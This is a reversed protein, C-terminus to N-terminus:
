ALACSAVGDSLQSRRGFLVPLSGATLITTYLVTRGGCGSIERGELCAASAVAPAIITGFFFFPSVRASRTRRRRRWCSPFFCRVPAAPRKRATRTYLKQAWSRSQYSPERCRARESTRPENSAQCCWRCCVPTCEYRRVLASVGSSSSFTEVLNAKKERLRKVAIGASFFCRPLFFCNVSMRQVYHRRLACQDPRQRTHLSAQANCTFCIHFTLRSGRRFHRFLNTAGLATFLSSASLIGTNSM